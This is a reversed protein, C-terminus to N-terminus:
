DNAGSKVAAVRARILAQVVASRRLGAPLRYFFERALYGPNGFMRLGSDVTVTREAYLREYTDAASEVSYRKRVFDACAAQTRLAATRDAWRQRLAASMQAVVDADSSAKLTQRGQFNTDAAVQISDTDILGLYRSGWGVFTPRELALAEIATRGSGICVDAASAYPTGATVDDTESHAITRGAEANAEDVLRRIQRAADPEQVFGAHLFVARRGERNMRAVLAIGWRVSRLYVSACRAVRVVLTDADELGLRARISSRDRERVEPALARFDVRAPLVDVATSPSRRRVDRAVESTFVVVRNLGYYSLPLGGSTVTWVFAAGEERAVMAADRVGDHFELWHIAAYGERRVVDRLNGRFSPRARWEYLGSIPVVPFAAARILSDDLADDRTREDARRVLFDIAYGRDRLVTALAVATRTHGGLGPSLLGFLIRHPTMALRACRVRRM